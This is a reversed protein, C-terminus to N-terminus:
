DYDLICILNALYKHFIRFTLDQLVSQPWFRWFCRTRMSGIFTLISLEEESVLLKMETYCKKHLGFMTIWTHSSAFFKFSSKIQGRSRKIDSIFYKASYKDISAWRQSSTSMETWQSTWIKLQNIFYTLLFMLSFSSQSIGVKPLLCDIAKKITFNTHWRITTEPWVHFTSFQKFM